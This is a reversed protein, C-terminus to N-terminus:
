ARQVKREIPLEVGRIVVLEEDTDDRLFDDIEEPTIVGRPDGWEGLSARTVLYYRESM